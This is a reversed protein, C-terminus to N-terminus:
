RYSVAIIADGNDISIPSNNINFLSCKFKIHLKKTPQSSENNLYHEVSVIQFYSDSPQQSDNSTYELGASDTWTIIINSLALPNSNTGQIGYSFDALCGSFNETSVNKCVYSTCGQDTTQELCVKYIGPNSFTHSVASLNSTAGDGFDWLYTSPIGTGLSSFSITNGSLLSDIISVDCVADPVDIKIQNCITSSCSSNVDNITLCANYYGPHTYTHIPSFSGTETNGDGFDWTHDYNNLSDSIANFSVVYETPSGVTTSDSEQMTYYSPFLSTNIQTAGNPPSATYDNIQFKIKNNCNLCNNQKLEGSFNYVYNSDQTYSSYMYYNNVGAAINVAVGNVTGNFYFVPTATSAIPYDKKCGIISLLLFLFLLRNM